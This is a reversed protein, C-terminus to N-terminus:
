LNIQNKLIKGWEDVLKPIDYMGNTKSTSPLHIFEVGRQEADREEIQYKNRFERFIEATDSKKSKGGNFAVIRISSYKELLSYAKNFSSLEKNIGGDLSGERVCEGYVDWLAIHLKELLMKKHNYDTTELSEGSLNAIVEWFRNDKNAYYEKAELSDQGPFTGLILIRPANCLLASLGKTKKLSNNNNGTVINKECSMFCRTLLTALPLRRAATKNVLGFTM